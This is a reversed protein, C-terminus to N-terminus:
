QGTSTASTGGGILSGAVFVGLLAGFPSGGEFAGLSPPPPPPPPAERACVYQGWADIGERTGLFFQRGDLVYLSNNGGSALTAAQDPALSLPTVTRLVGNSGVIEVRMDAFRPTGLTNRLETYKLTCSTNGPSPFNISRSLNPAAFSLGCASTSLLAACFVFTKTLRHM